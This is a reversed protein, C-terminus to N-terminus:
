NKFCLLFAHLCVNTVMTIENKSFQVTLKFICSFLVISNKMSVYIYCYINYQLYICTYSMYMYRSLDGLVCILKKNKTIGM